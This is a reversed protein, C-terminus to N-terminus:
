LREKKFFYILKELLEYNKDNEIVYEAYLYPEIIRFLRIAQEKYIFDCSM